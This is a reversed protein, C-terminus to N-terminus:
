SNTKPLLIVLCTGVYIYSEAIFVQGGFSSIIEKAIVLDLGLNTNDTVFYPEFIKEWNNFHIGQGKNRFYIQIPYQQDQNYVTRIILEKHSYNATMSNVRNMLIGLISERFEAQNLFADPLLKDLEVKVIIQRHSILNDVLKVVEQISNNINVRQRRKSRVPDQFSIEVAKQISELAKRIKDIQQSNEEIKGRSRKRAIDHELRLLLSDIYYLRNRMEHILVGHLMSRAYKNAESNIKITEVRYIAASIQYSFGTVIPLQTLNFVESQAYTLILVYRDAFEESPVPSGVISKCDIMEFLNRSDNRENLDNVVIAQEQEVIMNIHYNFLETIPTRAFPIELHSCAYIHSNQETDVRFVIVYQASFAKQIDSCLSYVKSNLLSSRQLLRNQLESQLDSIDFLSIPNSNLYTRISIYIRGADDIEVVVAKVHDGLQFIQSMDGSDSISPLEENKLFAEIKDSIKVMSGFDTIRSIIGTVVDGVKFPM